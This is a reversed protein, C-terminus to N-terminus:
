LAFFNYNRSLLSYTIFNHKGGAQRIHYILSVQAYNLAILPKHRKKGSRKRLM